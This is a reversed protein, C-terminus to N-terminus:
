KGGGKRRPAPIPVIKSLRRVLKTTADDHPEVWSLAHAPSCNMARLHKHCQLLLRKLADVEGPLMKRKPKKPPDRDVIRRLTTSADKPPAGPRMRGMSEAGCWTCGSPTLIPMQKYQWIEGNSDRAQYQAMPHHWKQRRITKITRLETM